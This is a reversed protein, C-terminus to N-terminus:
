GDYAPPLAEEGIPGGELRIGGDQSQRRARAQPWFVGLDEAEEANADNAGGAQAPAHEGDDVDPAPSATPLPSQSPQLLPAKHTSQARILGPPSTAGAASPSPSSPPSPALKSNPLLPMASGLATSPTTPSVRANSEIAITESPPSPPVFPTVVYGAEGPRVPVAGAGKEGGGAGETFVGGWSTAYRADGFGIGLFRGSGFTGRRALWFLLALLLAGVASCVAIAAISGHSLPHSASSSDLAQTPSATAGSTTSRTASTSTPPTTTSTPTTGANGGPFGDGDSATAYISTSSYFQPCESPDPCWGEQCGSPSTCINSPPLSVVDTASTTSASATDTASGKAAAKSSGSQEARGVLFERAHYRVHDLFTQPDNYLHVPPRHLPTSSVEVHSIVFSPSTTTLRFHHPRFSLPPTCDVRMITPYLLDSRTCLETRGDVAYVAADEPDSVFISITSGTFYFSASGGADDNELAVAHKGREDAGWAGGYSVRSDNADVILSQRAANAAVAVAALHFALSYTRM